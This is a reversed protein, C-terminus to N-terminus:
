TCRAMITLRRPKPHASIRKGTNVGVMGVELAEALRWCRNVDKSFFYGALGVESENALKIAEEENDFAFFAAVPGFTEEHAIKM